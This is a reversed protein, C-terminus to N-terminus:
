MLLQGEVFGEPITELRSHSLLFFIYIHNTALCHLFFYFLKLLTFHM